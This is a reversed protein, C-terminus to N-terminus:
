NDRVNDVGCRTWQSGGSTWNDRASRRGERGKRKRGERQRETCKEGGRERLSPEAHKVQQKKCLSPLAQLCTNETLHHFSGGVDSFSLGNGSGSTLVHCRPLGTGSPSSSINSGPRVFSRLLVVRNAIKTVAHTLVDVNLVTGPSVGQLWPIRGVCFEVWIHFEEQRLYTM